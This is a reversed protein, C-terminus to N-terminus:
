FAMIDFMRVKQAEVMAIMALMTKGSGAAGYYQIIRGLPLGGCSLADDLSLSGTSIVPLKEGVTEHAMKYDLQEESEAFSKFSAPKLSLFNSSLKFFTRPLERM